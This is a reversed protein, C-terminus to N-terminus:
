RYERKTFWIDSLNFGFSVRFLNERVLSSKNGRAGIEFTTNVTTYQNTYFNRRIPLGAGFTFARSNLESGIDIQDPGFYFGARYTVRSWYKKSMQDPTFQGGVRITWSDRLADREGYYRYQSWQTNNFEIGVMWKDIKDLMFSAGFSAPLTIDGRQRTTRFVSDLIIDGRLGPEYTERSIDRKADMTNELGYTAGFRLNLDGSLVFNYQIGAKVFLGGFNTSDTYRAKQYNVTDNIFVLKSVYNKNGFMYGANVGISFKKTGYGVGLYSQYSGGNGSYQYVVSDIGQLRTSTIIDYSIRTVPKLGVTMGWNKKKSLPFGINLYTPILYASRYSNPNEGGSRIRRSDYELGVDFTTLKLRSYSAPNSFNVSQLDWYALSLGGMARNLVNQTPIVDGIGIRSYPSNEQALATFSCLASIILLFSYKRLNTTTSVSRMSVRIYFILTPM